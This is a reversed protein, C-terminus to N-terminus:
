SCGIFTQLLILLFSFPKLKMSNIPTTATIAMRAATDTGAMFANWAMEHIDTNGIGQEHSLLLAVDDGTHGIYYDHIRGGKYEDIFQTVRHLLEESPKIHGGISGIDAKILSLTTKM